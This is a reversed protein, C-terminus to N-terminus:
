AQHKERLGEPGGDLLHQVQEHGEVAALVLELRVTVCYAQVHSGGQGGSQHAERDIDIYRDIEIERKIAHRDRDIDRDRDYKRDRYQEV